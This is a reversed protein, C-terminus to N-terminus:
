YQNIKKGDGDFQGTFTTSYFMNNFSENKFDIDNSLKYYANSDLKMAYFEEVTTILKPNEVSGGVESTTFNSKAMLHVKKNYTAYVSLNYLKGVALNTFEISYLDDTKTITKRNIEIQGDYIVAVISKDVINKYPDHVDVELYASTRAAELNKIKINVDVKAACASISFILALVTIISIIRKM